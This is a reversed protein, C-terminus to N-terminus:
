RCVLDEEDAVDDLIWADSKSADDFRVCIARIEPLAEVFADHIKPDFHSGRSEEILSLTTEEGYMTKYCRESTIADFVDAIATIRAELPIETGALGDPYGMGDWREHHSMAIRSAMGLLPNSYSTNDVNWPMGQGWDAMAYHFHAQERLIRAGIRCHQKMIAWESPNLLGRKLLIADPIGVKGIDHLPAAVFLTSVFEQDLGLALGIIRSICGVRIVHHGTAIDRREAVMGLRWVMDLQSRYLERTRAFVKRDLQNNRKQLEDQFEKLRLANRLRAILMEREVPKALLDTAGFDLAKHKLKQDTSGTLMVVPITRTAPSAQLQELLGLGSMRPMNVDCLVADIAIRKVLDLAEDASQAAHVEWQERLPRLMRRLADLMPREDDVLLIQKKLM